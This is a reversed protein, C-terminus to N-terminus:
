ALPPYPNSFWDPNMPRIIRQAPANSAHEVNSKAAHPSSPRPGSVPWVVSVTWTSFRAATSATVSPEYSAQTTSPEPPTCERPPIAVVPFPRCVKVRVLGTDM